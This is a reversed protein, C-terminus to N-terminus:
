FLFKFFIDFDNCCNKENKGEIGKIAKELVALTEKSPKDEEVIGEEIMWVALAHALKKRIKEKKEQQAVAAEKEEKVEQIKKQLVDRQEALIEELTKGSDLFEEIEKKSYM